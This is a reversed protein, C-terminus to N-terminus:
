VCHAGDHGGMRDRGMILDRGSFHVHIWFQWQRGGEGGRDAVYKAVVMGWEVRVGAAVEGGGGSEDM